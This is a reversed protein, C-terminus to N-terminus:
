AAKRERLVALAALRLTRPYQGICFYHRVQETPHRQLMRFLSEFKRRRASKFHRM